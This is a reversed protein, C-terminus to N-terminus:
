FVIASFPFNISGVDIETYLLWLPVNAQVVLPVKNVTKTLRWGYSSSITFVLTNAHAPAITLKIIESAKFHIALFNPYAPFDTTLNFLFVEM